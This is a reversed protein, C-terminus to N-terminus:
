CLPERTSDIATVIIVIISVRYCLVITHYNRSNEKLERSAAASDTENILTSCLVM